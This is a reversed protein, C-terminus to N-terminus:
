IAMEASNVVRMFMETLWRELEDKSMNNISQHTSNFGKIFSDINIQINKTQGGGAITKADDKTNKFDVNRTQGTNTETQGTTATEEAKKKNKADKLVADYKSNFAEKIRPASNAARKKADVGMLQSAGQKADSWAGKFDGKFLKMIASAMSGIGKIFDTVRDVVYNKLIVGFTKIAAWSGQVIARFKDFKNYAVVLGGILAGIALVILGIPNANAAVNFAWQAATVIAMKAAVLGQLGANFLMRANLISWAIGVGALVGGIIDLNNTLLVLGKGIFDIVPLTSNGISIAIAKVNNFAIYMNDLPTKAKDYAINLQGQSNQVFGITERFKNADQTASAFFGAAEMDLGLKGFFKARSLDSLGKTKKALMDVITTLPKVKGQADYLSIGMKKFDKIRAPDAIAKMANQTLTTAQEASKGQATLYAWAGATEELAFGANRAMPVINPLYKAIDQFEAKGKNVTAFLVDYVTNIDRGSSNMVNVAADATVGVDTFGAKAARLTPELVALSTNVDLGASIIKNFSDPIQELPAVNRSGIDLLKDSLKGLEQQSLQATVNAKAMGKQWDLAMGVSSGYAIGLAVIVATLAVYPNTLLEMARSLGPIEDKMAGFIKIHNEKLGNLKAQIQGTAKEVQRKAGDLGSKINNGIDLILKLKAIGSAM